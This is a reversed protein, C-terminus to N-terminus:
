PQADDDPLAPDDLMPDDLTIEVGELQAGSIELRPTTVHGDLPPLPSAPDANIWAILDPTRFRGDFFTADRQLHLTAVESLDPKGIYRLAFPLASTSQGIPAPLAPWTEPWQALRGDLQLVLRRGLALAGRADFTPIPGQGRLAVGVPALTWTAADFHLPGHLGLTFPLTTKGSEFRAAMGLRAPTIRLDDKGLQLPGSLAVTAPLQWSGREITIRGHAAFGTATDSALASPRSMAVALDVPITLPPDLYRALLRAQAPRDPYLSPLEVTIGDIRWDNNIVSGNSIHLGDTLTPIRRASPPRKAVWRQYAPLDFQPADLEIRQVTLDGGRARITSWPLSLYIRKAQLLPTAGRERAVVDRLVLMPTGRLRYEGIGSATIELGLANGVRDLLLGTVREPQLAVRLLLALLLLLAIVGAVLAIRRHSM